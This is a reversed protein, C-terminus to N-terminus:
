GLLVGIVSESEVDGTKPLLARPVSARDSISSVYWQVVVEQWESDAHGVPAM